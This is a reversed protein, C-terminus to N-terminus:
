RTSMTAIVDRVFRNGLAQHLLAFVQSSAHPYGGLLGAVADASPRGRQLLIQLEIVTPSTYAEVAVGDRAEEREGREREGSEREGGM